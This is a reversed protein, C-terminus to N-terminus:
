LVSHSLFIVIKIDTILFSEEVIKSDSGAALIEQNETLTLSTSIHRQEILLSQM